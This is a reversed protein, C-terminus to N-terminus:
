ACCNWGAGIAVFIRRSIDDNLSGRLQEGSLSAPGALRVTHNIGHRVTVRVDSQVVHSEEHNTTWSMPKCCSLYCYAKRLILVIMCSESKVIKCVEKMAIYLFRLIKPMVPKYAEQQARFPWGLFSGRGEFGAIWDLFSRMLKLDERLSREFNEIM